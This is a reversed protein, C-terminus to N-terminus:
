RMDALALFAIIAGLGALLLFAFSIKFAGAVGAALLALGTVFQKTAADM